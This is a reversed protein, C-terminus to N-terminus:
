KKSIVAAGMVSVVALAVAAGVFDNAGTSPNAKDDVVPAVEKVFTAKINYNEDIDELTLTYTEKGAAKAVEKGDVTVVDIVFGENATIVFSKDKGEKVEFKGEPSIKGNLGAEAKVIFTSKGSPTPEVYNPDKAGCEKCTGNKYNHGLAKIEEQAVLVEECVSCVKGETLGAEECTAEKGAVVKETHGLAEIAATYSDGCECTYTMVGAETCTAEKTVESTYVHEHPAPEEEVVLDVTATEVINTFNADVVEASVSVTANEEAKVVFTAVDASGEYLNMMLNVKLPNNLVFEFKDVEFSAENNLHSSVLEVGEPLAVEFLVGWSGGIASADLSVTLEFENNEKEVSSISIAQADAFAGVTMCSLVMVVTLLMAIMKKM